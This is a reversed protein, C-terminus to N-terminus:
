LPSVKLTARDRKPSTRLRSGLATLTMASVAVAVLFSLLSAALVIPIVLSSTIEIEGHLVLMIYPTAVNELMGPM